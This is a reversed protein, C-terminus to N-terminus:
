AAHKLLDLVADSWAAPGAGHARILKPVTTDPDDSSDTRQAVTSPCARAVIPADQLSDGIIVAELSPQRGEKEWKRRYCRLLIDVARSTSNSGTLHFFHEGKTCRLDRLTIQRYIEEILTDPGKILFPEGYERRQARM